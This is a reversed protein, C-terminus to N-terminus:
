MHNTFSNSELREQFNKGKMLKVIYRLISKKRKIRSPVPQAEQIHLNLNKRLNPFYKTMINEIEKLDKEREDCEGSPIAKPVHCDDM